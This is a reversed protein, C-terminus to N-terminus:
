DEYRGWTHCEVSGSACVPYAGQGLDFNLFPPLSFQCLCDPELTQARGGKSHLREFACGGAPPRKEEGAM